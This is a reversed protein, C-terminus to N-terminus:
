VEKLLTDRARVGLLSLLFVLIFSLVLGIGDQTPNTFLLPLGLLLQYGLCGLALVATALLAGLVRSWRSERHSLAAAILAALLFAALTIWPLPTALFGLLASPLSGQQEPILLATRALTEAGSLAAITILLLGQLGTTLIARGPRLFFGALLPLAFGLWLFGLLPTLMLLTSEPGGKRGCFLWWAVLLLTFIIAIALQGRAFLGAIFIISALASGLRPALFAGLAILAVIVILLIFELNTQLNDYALFLDFGSMGTCAFSGCAIASILRGLTNQTRRSLREWPPPLAVPPDSQNTDDYSQQPPDEQHWTDTTEVEVLERNNVHYKLWKRGAKVSGLFFSVQAIFDAVSDFRQWKDALLAQIIIEDAEPNLEPRLTSPLPLPEALIRDLSEFITPAHFPSTGTLMQYLLSALAWLDTRNDVGQQLLQEPPMYGLTGGQPEAFGATGSLQSLGFDSVKSHGQHDILINDPKIDLHLVQNEHAYELAAAVDGIITAIVDLSLLQPSEKLLTGLSPGDVYEMIILAETGTVQFDLVTVIHADNLLAATRAEQIGPLDTDSVSLPIRKIAVRRQLRTDWVIDVTGFAGTGTSELPRYRNLILPELM